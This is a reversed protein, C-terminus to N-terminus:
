DCQTHSEKQEIHQSPISCLGDSIGAEMAVKLVGLDVWGVVVVVVFGVM